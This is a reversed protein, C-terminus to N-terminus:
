GPVKEAAYAVVVVANEPVPGEYSQVGNGQLRFVFSFGSTMAVPEGSRKAPSWDPMSELVRKVEANLLPDVGEEFRVFTVKGRSSVNLVVSVVGQIGNEQAIVPYKVNDALFKMLAEEGGPFEASEFDKPSEPLATGKGDEGDVSKAGWLKFVVPLTFRVRVVEGRQKGPTWAPMLRLVRVAEADLLPDVGSVVDVNSIRGDKEVVFNLFVRGEIGKEKAEAPYRINDSVFQMLAADGGPFVPQDEVVVFIEDSTRLPSVPPPPSTLDASSKKDERGVLKFVVPLTFRVRVAEGRQKGPTWAPMLRLVRVAEADLLPDVGRVVDVNSIRGDKEVVFNTIVRGEIGKEMAEEPYRVSDSVFRMLAADGGPFVPSLETVTFIESDDGGEEAPPLGPVQLSDPALAGNEATVASDGKANRNVCSGALILLFSLPLVLLYKTLTLAPSKTKNMMMIRRKLQSVNFNNVIQVAAEHHTLRLLHYQYERCDVGERLVGSDALCELNVSVERRMLWVFPNWWSLLSVLEVLIIDASHCQRVHMREHLLIQSLEAESHEGARIFIMGFFSFPTVGGKLRYVSMGSVTLREGKARIRCISLLQFAFRLLFVLTVTFYLRSLIEKASVPDRAVTGDELIEAMVPVGVRVEVAPERSVAPRFTWVDGLAPIVFLPYLLSFVIVSLFFFRRLHLFTDRELLAAHLLYFLTLAVNVQALYTFFPSM